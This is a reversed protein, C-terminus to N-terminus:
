QWAAATGHCTAPPQQILSVQEQVPWPSCARKSSGVPNPLSSPLLCFCGLLHTAAPESRLNLQARDQNTSLSPLSVPIPKFPQLPTVQRPPSLSTATLVRFPQSCFVSAIDREPFVWCLAPQKFLLQNANSQWGQCSKTRNQHSIFTSSSPMKFQLQLLLDTTTQEMSTCQYGQPLCLKAQQQM